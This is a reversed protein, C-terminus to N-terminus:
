KKKALIKKDSLIYKMTYYLSFLAFFVNLWFFLWNAWLYSFIAVLIGWIALALDRRLSNMKFAYWLGLWALGLIFIITSYWEFLYLSLTILVIGSFSLVGLDFRDNTNLMMLISAIVILIELFVFFVSWGSLYGMIAYLLMILWGVAFLWNKISKMPSKTKEIPYAAGTLLVLSGLVGVFFSFEM